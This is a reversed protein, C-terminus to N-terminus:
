GHVPERERMTAGIAENMALTHPDVVGHVIARGLERIRRGAHLDPSLRALERAARPGRAVFAAPEAVITRVADAALGTDEVIVCAEPPVTELFPSGAFGVVLAGGALAATGLLGWADGFDAFVVLPALALRAVAADDAREAVIREAPLAGLAAILPAIRSEGTAAGHVVIARTIERPPQPPPIPFGPRTVAIATVPVGAAHLLAASQASPVWYHEADRARAAVADSV